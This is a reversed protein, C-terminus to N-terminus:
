ELFFGPAVRHEGGFTRIPREREGDQRAAPCGYARRVSEERLKGWADDSVEGRVEGNPDEIGDEWSLSQPHKAELWGPM